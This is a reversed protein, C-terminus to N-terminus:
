SYLVPFKMFLLDLQYCQLQVSCATAIEIGINVDDGFAMLHMKCDLILVPVESYFRRDIRQLCYTM